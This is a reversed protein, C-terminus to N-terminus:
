LAIVGRTLYVSRKPQVVLARGVAMVMAVALDIKESAAEKDFKINGAPDTRTVVNSVCWALVKHGGHRLRRDLLRKQTQKIPDNMSLFGQRHEFVTFGDEDALRTAVYIANHPDMAIEQVDLGWEDRVQRLRARLCDYDVSDGETLELLGREAWTVYPVRRDRQRGIANERPCWCFPVVDICGDDMPIALVVATLDDVSSLDAGAFCPRGRWREIQAPLLGEPGYLPDEGRCRDWLGAPLWAAAAAVEVNLHKQLFNALAAPTEKAKKAKRRLDDIKVSVGLNPNAKIWNAEDTWDDAPRVEAGAEDYTAGDMQYILAFWSDDEVLGELVKRSYGALEQYLSNPDDGRGATTIGWMMPQRRAGTATEIVDWLGRDPHAHLEDGIAGHVNLGDLTDSDSALPAYKSDTAEISLNDKHMAVRRRLSPSRRVMRRAEEHVIRAQDKKTAFTYVEAGPENDAVTLRHGAAAGLLSKGNKRAVILIVTNFRRNGDAKKWGFPVWYLFAEWPECHIPRGAWEGKSHCLCEVFDLTFQADEYDFWLGRKAGEALDRVHREVALRALRGTVIRGSLVGEIYEVVRPDNRDRDPITFKCPKRRQPTKKIRAAM